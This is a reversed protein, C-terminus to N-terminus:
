SGAVTDRVLPATYQRITDWPFRVWTSQPVERASWNVLGAGQPKVFLTAFRANTLEKQLLRLTTGTDALDDVVLVNSRFQEACMKLIKPEHRQQEDYSAISVTEIQRINLERAIIGAPFMGGRTIALIKDIEPADKHISVALDRCMMQIDDWSVYLASTYDSM